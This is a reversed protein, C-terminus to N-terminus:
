CLVELPFNLVAFEGFLELAKKDYAKAAEIIDYFYGLNYLLGEHRLQVRYKCDGKYVYKYVGKYGSKNDPRKGKNACNQSRSCYRLNSPLNNLPNRDEHDVIYWQKYGLIFEALSISYGVKWWNSIVVKCIDGKDNFIGRFRLGKNKIKFYDKVDVLCIEPTNTLLLIVPNEENM